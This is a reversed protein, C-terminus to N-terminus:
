VRGSGLGGTVDVFTAQVEFVGFPSSAATSAGGRGVQASLKFECPEAGPSPVSFGGSIVRGTSGWRVEGSL